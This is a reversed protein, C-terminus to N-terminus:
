KKLSTDTTVKFSRFNRYTARGEVEEGGKKFDEDMQAPVWLGTEPAPRYVVTTTMESRGTDVKIQTKLIRGNSPDIWLVGSSPADGGAGIPRVLTPRGLEEFSLRTARIGEVTQEGDREFSVTRIREPGLLALPLTPINITRTITGINYRASENSIDQAMRRAGAPNELFLKQVRAERDRVPRGDVEFVDRYHMWGVDNETKVLLVDSRLHRSLPAGPAGRLVRQYYDEEAVVNGFDRVYAALYETLRALLISLAPDAAKPRRGAKPASAAAGAPPVAGTASPLPLPLWAISVACAAGLVAPLIRVLADYFLLHGGSAPQIVM